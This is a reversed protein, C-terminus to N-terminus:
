YTAPLPPTSGNRLGGACCACCLAACWKSLVTSSKINIFCAGCEKALAQRPVLSCAPHPLYAGLSSNLAPLTLFTYASLSSTLAGRCSRQGDSTVLRAFVFYGHSYCGASSQRLFRGAEAASKGAVFSGGAEKSGIEM